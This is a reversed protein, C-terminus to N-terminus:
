NRISKKNQIDIRFLHWQNYPLANSFLVLFVGFQRECLFYAMTIMEIHILWDISADLPPCSPSPNVITIALFLYFCLIWRCNTCTHSKHSLIMTNRCHINICKSFGKQKMFGFMEKKREKEKEKETCNICDVCIIYLEDDHHTYQQWTLQVM